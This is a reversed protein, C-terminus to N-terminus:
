NLRLLSINKIEALNHEGGGLFYVNLYSENFMRVRAQVLVDPTRRKM